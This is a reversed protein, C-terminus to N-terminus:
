KKGLKSESNNYARQDRQNRHIYFLKEADSSIAEEQFVYSFVAAQM